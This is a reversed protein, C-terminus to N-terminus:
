SPDPSSDSQGTVEDDRSAKYRERGSAYATPAVTLGVPEGQKWQRHMQELFPRCWGCGTGAGLCDALQSAVRPRTREIYRRLKGHSVHFCLCIDDADNM